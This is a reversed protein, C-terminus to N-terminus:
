NQHAWSGAGKEIERTIANKFVPAMNVVLLVQLDIKPWPYWILTGCNLM